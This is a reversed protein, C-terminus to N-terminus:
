DREHLRRREGCTGSGKSRQSKQLVTASVKLSASVTDFPM